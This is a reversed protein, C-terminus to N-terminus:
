KNTKEMAEISDFTDDLGDREGYLSTIVSSLAFLASLSFGVILASYIWAMPIRLMASLQGRQALHKIFPIGSGCLLLSIIIIFIKNLYVMAKKMTKPLFKLFIDTSTLLGKRLAVAFGLSIFWIQMYRALEELWVISITINRTLVTILISIVMIAFMVIILIEAIKELLNTLKQFLVVLPKM